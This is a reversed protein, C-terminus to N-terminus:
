ILDQTGILEELKVLISICGSIWSGGNEPNTSRLRRSRLGLRLEFKPLSQVFNVPLVGTHGSQLKRM